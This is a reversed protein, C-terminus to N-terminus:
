PVTRSPFAQTADAVLFGLFEISYVILFFWLKRNLLSNHSKTTIAGTNRVAKNIM